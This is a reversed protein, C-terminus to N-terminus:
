QQHPISQSGQPEAVGSSQQSLQCLLLLLLLLLLRVWCKQMWKAAAVPCSLAPLPSPRQLCPQFCDLEVVAHTAAALLQVGAAAAAAAAPDM